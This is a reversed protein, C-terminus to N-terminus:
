GKAAQVCTTLVTFWEKPPHLRWRDLKVWEPDRWDFGYVEICRGAELSEEEWIDKEKSVFFYQMTRGKEIAYYVM